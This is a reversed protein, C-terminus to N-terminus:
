TLYMYINSASVTIAGFTTPFTPPTSTSTTSSVGCLIPVIANVETGASTVGCLTPQTTTVASTWCMYYLGTYTTTFSTATGAAVKAVPLANIYGAPTLQATANASVALMLRSANALAAWNVTVDNSSATSGIVVNFNNVVTNAPLFLAGMYIDTATTAITVSESAVERPMTQGVATAPSLYTDSGAPPTFALVAANIANILEGEGFSTPRSAGLNVATQALLEGLGTEIPLTGTAM